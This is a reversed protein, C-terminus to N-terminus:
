FIRNGVNKTTYKSLYLYMTDVWFSKSLLGWEFMVM